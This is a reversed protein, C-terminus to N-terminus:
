CGIKVSGLNLPPLGDLSALDVCPEREPCPVQQHPHLCSGALDVPFASLSLCRVSSEVSEFHPLCALLLPLRAFVLPKLYPSQIVAGLSSPFSSVSWRKCLSFGMRLVARNRIPAAAIM